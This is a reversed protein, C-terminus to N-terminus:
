KGMRSIADEIEVRMKEAATVAPSVFDEADGGAYIIGRSSNVIAGLRDDNFGNVVDDATAGQAGYGPILFPIQPYLQRLERMQDPYTAGIVAGVSSYGDFLVKQGWKEVLAAIRKYVPTKAGENSETVLDQLEIASPNSTKVLIFLGKGSEQVDKLFPEVGDSGFLPNITIADAEFDPSQLGSLHAQSYAKATSGIDGRKVDGIAIAGVSKVKKLTKSYTELGAIGYAEYFAIQAKFAVAIDALGEILKSNFQWIAEAKAKTSDAKKGLISEIFPKPMKEIAPDLGVVVKSCKKSAAEWLKSIFPRNNSM